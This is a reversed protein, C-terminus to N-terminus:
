GSRPRLLRGEFLAIGQEWGWGVAAATDAGTLVVGGSGAAPLPAAAAAFAAPLGPSWRLHLLDLGLRRPPLVSLVAPEAGVLATRFGRVRCLDRAAALAAPDALIDGARTGVVVAARGAPGLAEAFRGFEPAGVVAAPSLCLAAAGLGAARDPRALAALLRRDVARRLRRLLWPSAGAAAPDAGPPALAAFLEPLAVRWERWAVEPAGDNPGLRCVPRQRLFSSLDAGALGREMAALDEPTFGPERGGGGDGPAARVAGAAGAAAPPSPALAAEVAAFLAAAEEPLRLRAVAPRAGGDSALLTRLAAEAERLRESGPPAVAVFDANPLAFLRVRAAGRLLDLAEDVMRRRQPQLLRPGLGGLRLHLAERQAAAAVAERLLRILALADDGGAHAAAAATV